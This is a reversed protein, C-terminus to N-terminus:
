KKFKVAFDTTISIYPNTNSIDFQVSKVGWKIFWFRKPEISIVGVITDRMRVNILTSDPKAETHLYAHVDEYTAVILGGVSDNPVTKSIDVNSHSIVASQARKLSIDMAALRKYLESNLRKLDGINVELAKQKHTANGLKDKYVRGTDSLATISRSLSGIEARQRQITNAMTYIVFALAVGILSYTLIKSM